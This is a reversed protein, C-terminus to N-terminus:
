ITFYLCLSDYVPKRFKSNNIKGMGRQRHTPPEYTEDDDDDDDDDDDTDEDETMAHFYADEVMSKGPIIENEPTHRNYLYGRITDELNRVRDEGRFRRRTAAISARVTEPTVHGYQQKVGDLIAKIREPSFFEEAKKYNEEMEKLEKQTIEQTEEKTPLHFTESILKEYHRHEADKWKQEGEKTLKASRELDEMYYMITDPTISGYMYEIDAVRAAIQEPSWSWPDYPDGLDEPRARRRTSSRAGM